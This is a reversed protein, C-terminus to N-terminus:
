SKLFSSTNRYIRKKIVPYLYKKNSNQNDNDNKNKSRNRSKTQTKSIDYKNATISNNMNNKDINDDDTEM